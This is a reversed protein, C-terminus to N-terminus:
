SSKSLFGNKSKTNSQFVLFFRTRGPKEWGCAVIKFMNLVTIGHKVKQFPLLTSCIVKKVAKSYEGAPDPDLFIKASGTRQKVDTSFFEAWRLKRNFKIGINEPLSISFHNM